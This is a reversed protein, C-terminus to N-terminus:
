NQWDCQRKREVEQMRDKQLEVKKKNQKDMIQNLLEDKM